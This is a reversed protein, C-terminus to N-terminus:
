SADNAELTTSAGGQSAMVSDVYEQSNEVNFDSNQEASSMRLGAATHCATFQTATM